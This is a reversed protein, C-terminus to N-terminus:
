GRWDLWGIHKDASVGGVPTSSASLYGIVGDFFVWCDELGQLVANQEMQLTWVSMLGLSKFLDFRIELAEVLVHIVVFSSLGVAAILYFESRFFHPSSFFLLIRCRYCSRSHSHFPILGM